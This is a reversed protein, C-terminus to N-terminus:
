VGLRTDESKRVALREMDAALASLANRRYVADARATAEAHRRQVIAQARAEAAQARTPFRRGTAASRAAQGMARATVFIFALFGGVISAVIVDTM